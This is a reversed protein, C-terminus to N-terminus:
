RFAKAIPGPMGARCRFRPSASKLLPSRFLAISLELRHQFLRGFGRRVIQTQGDQEAHGMVSQALIVLRRRIELAGRVPVRIVQRQQQSQLVSIEPGILEVVHHVYVMPNERQVGFGGFRVHQSALGEVAEM